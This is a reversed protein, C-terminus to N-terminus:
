LDPRGWESLHVVVCRVPQAGVRAALREEHVVGADRQGSIGVGIAANLSQFM